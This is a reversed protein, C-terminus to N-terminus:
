SQHGRVALVHYNNHDPYHTFHFCVTRGFAAPCPRSRAASHLQTTGHYSSLPLSNTVSSYPSEHLVNGKAATVLM